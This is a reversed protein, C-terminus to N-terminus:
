KTGSLIFRKESIRNIELNFDRFKELFDKESISILDLHVEGIVNKISDFNIFDRFILEEAGEVDFKLLDVSEIKNKNVFGGLTESNVSIEIDNNKRRVLSSSTSNSGSYFKLVGESDSVATNFCKINGVDKTNMILRNFTKPDPEISYIDADPFVSHFYISAFGINAGLDLITNIEKKSVDINSYENNIFIERFVFFDSINSLFIRFIKSNLYINISINLDKNIKTFKFLYICSIFYIVKIKSPTDCCIRLISNILNIKSIIKM